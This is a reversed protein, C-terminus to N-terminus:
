ALSVLDLVLNGALLAAVAGVAMVVLFPIQPTVWVRAIGRAKLEAAIREREAQDDESTEIEDRDRAGSALPDELWVFRHPLQDVPLMYGIFGAPFRFERRALNRLAIAIPIAISLVAANMLLDVSFPLVSLVYGFAPPLPLVVSAFTPLLLGAAMVAKADAGGYLVGAEFLGRAFLVTVLVALVPWPVGNPGIGWHVAAVIVGLVVAAYAIAEVLDAAASWREGLLDDWGVFHQLTFVGVILWLIYAFLGDGALLGFGLVLGAVGLAQWLRDTVERTRLDAVAGYALGALLVAVQALLIGEAFGVL